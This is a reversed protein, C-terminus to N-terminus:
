QGSHHFESPWFLFPLSALEVSCSLFGVEQLERPLTRNWLRSKRTLWYSQSIHIESEFIHGTYSRSVDLNRGHLFVQRFMGSPKMNSHGGPSPCRESSRDFMPRDAEAFHTWSLTSVIFGLFDPRPPKHVPLFAPAFPKRDRQGVHVTNFTALVGETKGRPSVGQKGLVSL